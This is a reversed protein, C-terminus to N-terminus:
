NLREKAGCCRKFKKGSGCPCPENRNIHLSQLTPKPAQKLLEEGVKKVEKYRGKLLNLLNPIINNLGIILASHELPLKDDETERAKEDFYYTYSFIRPQKENDLEFKFFDLQVNKNDNKPDMDYADEAFYKDKKIAFELPDKARPFLELYNMKRGSEFILYSQPNKEGFAKAEAYRQKFLILLEDPLDKSFKKIIDTQTQTMEPQEPLPSHTRNFHLLFSIRNDKNEQDRFSVTVHNCDCFPNTCYYDDLVYTNKYDEEEFRYNM